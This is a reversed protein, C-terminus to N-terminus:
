IKFPGPYPGRVGVIGDVIGRILMSWHGMWGKSLKVTVPLLLVRGILGILLRAKWGTAVHPQSVLLVVNRAYYYRRIASYGLITMGLARASAGTSLEHSMTVSCIGFLRYGRDLARFCWEMDSYDVFFGPDYQGVGSYASVSIVSGSTILFDTEIFESDGTCRAATPWGIRRRMFPHDLRRRGRVDVTRPGVAAVNNGASALVHMANILTAIQGAAPESDQDFTTVYDFRAATALRFGHNLAEGLGKNGGMDVIRIAPDAQLAATIADRGGGNDMVYVSECEDALAGILRNIQSEDPGFAVVIAAIRTDARAASHATLVWENIPDV